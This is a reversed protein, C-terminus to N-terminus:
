IIIIFYNLLFYCGVFGPWSTVKAVIQNDKIFILQVTVARIEESDWDMTRFHVVNGGKPHQIIISTCRALIDYGINLMIVEIKPIGVSKVINSISDVEKQIEKNIFFRWFFQIIIRLIFRIIWPFIKEEEKLKQFMPVMEQKYDNILETWREKPPKNLDIVYIPITSLHKENGMENLVRRQENEFEEKNIRKM